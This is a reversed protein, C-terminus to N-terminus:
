CLSLVKAKTLVTIEEGNITAAQFRPKCISTRVKKSGRQEDKFKGSDMFQRPGVFYAGVLACGGGLVHVASAGAFDLLGKNVDHQVFSLTLAM